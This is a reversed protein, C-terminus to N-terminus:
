GPLRVAEVCQREVDDGAGHNYVHDTITQQAHGVIRAVVAQDANRRAKTIFWHRLSHFNVRDQRDQPRAKDTVGLAIRYRTFRKSFPASRGHDTRTEEHMLFADSPKGELRRAVIAALDPHIPVFRRAAATKGKRVFFRNGQCDAARLQFIENMRMGSLAAVRMADHMEVDAPGALLCALEDDTYARHRDDDATAHHTLALSQRTWPDAEIGRRRRLWDWYSSVASIRRNTTGRRKDAKSLGTIWEGAVKRTVSEVLPPLGKAVIWDALRLVDARYMAATRAPYPGRRGGEALWADVFTLLPTATGFALSALTNADAPRRQDHHLAEIREQLVERAVHRADEQASYPQAADYRDPDFYGPGTSSRFGSVTATDNREILELTERWALGEEVVDLATTTRAAHGDIVARWRSLFSWRRAQAVALDHTKLSAAFRPKGLQRRLKRPVDLVM